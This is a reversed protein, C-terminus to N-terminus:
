DSISIRDTTIADRFPDKILFSYLSEWTEIELICKKEKKLSPKCLHAEPTCKQSLMVERISRDLTCLGCM